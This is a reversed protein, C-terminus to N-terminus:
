CFWAAQLDQEAKIERHPTWIQDNETCKTERHHNYQHRVKLKCLRHPYTDKERKYQSALSLQGNVPHVWYFINKSHLACHIESNHSYSFVLNWTQYHKSFSIKSRSDPSLPRVLFPFTSPRSLQRDKSAHIIQILSFEKSFHFLISKLTSIMM